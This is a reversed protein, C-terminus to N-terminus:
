LQLLAICPVLPLHSLYESLELDIVEEVHCTFSWFPEPEKPLSSRYNSETSVQPNIFQFAELELVQCFSPIPYPNLTSWCLLSTLDLISLKGDWKIM